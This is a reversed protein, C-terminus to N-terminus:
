LLGTLPGLYQSYKRQHHEHLCATVFHVVKSKPFYNVHDVQAYQNWFLLSRQPTRTISDIQKGRM